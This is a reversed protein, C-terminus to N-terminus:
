LVQHLKTTELFLEYKQSSNYLREYLAYVDNRLLKKFVKEAEQISTDNKYTNILVFIIKKCLTVNHVSKVYRCNPIKIELPM